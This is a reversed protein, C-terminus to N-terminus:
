LRLGVILGSVVRVARPDPDVPLPNPTSWLTRPNTCYACGGSWYVGVRTCHAARFFVRSLDDDFWSKQTGQALVQLPWAPVPPSAESTLSGPHAALLRASGSGACGLTWLASM